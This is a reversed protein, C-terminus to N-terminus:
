IHILSLLPLQGHHKNQGVILAQMYFKQKNKLQQFESIFDENIHSIGDTIFLIDGGNKTTKMYNLAENLPAQFNTGGGIYSQMLALFEKMQYKGKRFIQVEKFDVDGSFPIFIFDRRQKKMISLLTLIFGKGQADLENMSSSEDYCIILMGKQKVIKQKYDYMVAKNELLRHVFSLAAEPSEATLYEQPLLRELKGGRTSSAKLISKKTMKQRQQQASIKFYASWYSIEQLKNSQQLADALQIKELLAIKGSMADNVSLGSLLAELQQQRKKIKAIVLELKEATFQQENDKLLPILEVTALTALFKNGVKDRTFLEYRELDNLYSIEKRVPNGTYFACWLNEALSMWQPNKVLMNKLPNTNQSIMKFSAIVQEDVAHVFDYKESSM